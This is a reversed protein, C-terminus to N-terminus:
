SQKKEKRNGRASAEELAQELEVRTGEPKTGAVTYGEETVKVLVPQMFFTIYLGVTLVAFAAILLVNVIRPTYKIRLGPYESPQEMRFELDGVTVIGGPPLHLTSSGSQDITEVEYIPDRYSGLVGSQLVPNGNEDEGLEYIGGVWLGTSNDKSLMSAETLVFTDEEGTEHDIVTVAPATGYYQQFVKYSGFNFPHNVSVHALDSVSGDPLTLYLDSAYDLRGDDDEIRFDQVTIKAGGEVTITDGVLCDMDSVQPLYLAAAGFVLTLLIGLHTLFSGYRGFHNKTYMTAGEVTQERCRRSRLWARVTEVETARLPNVIPLRAAQRVEDRDTRLLVRLRMVSCLTLNLGLLVMLLVYYWSTYLATFRLSQLLTHARPYTAAYWEATQGQPIVTGVVSLAAIALLLGIGFKMSRLFRWLKKLVEM